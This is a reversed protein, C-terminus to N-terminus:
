RMSERLEVLMRDAADVRFLGVRPYELDLIVYMTAAVVVSFALVHTRSLARGGAMGHGALVACALALGFLMAFVIAPPHTDIAMRRANVVDFMANLAPLVLIRPAPDARTAAIAAAWIEQQMAVGRGWEAFAADSSENVLRYAELRSDLYRRFLDRLGPQADSALLDLRLWATGIANTEEVILTRRADFRIAAGSFTFAIMLGLIAFVAGDVTALGTREREPDAGLRRTGLRYGVELSALMALFLGGAALISLVSRSM